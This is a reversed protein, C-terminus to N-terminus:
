PEYRPGFMAHIMSSDADPRWYPKNPLNILVYFKSDAIQQLDNQMGHDRRILSLITQPTIRKNNCHLLHFHINGAAPAKSEAVKEVLKKLFKHKAEYDIPQGIIEPAMSEVIPGQLGAILHVRGGTSNNFVDKVCIIGRLRNEHKRGSHAQIYDKIRKGVVTKPDFDVDVEALAPFYTSVFSALALGEQEFKTKTKNSKRKAM